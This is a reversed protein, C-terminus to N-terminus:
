LLSRYDAIIVGGIEKADLVTHLKGKSVDVISQALSRGLDDLNIGVVSISIDQSSALAVQELVVKEPDNSTTHLGDTLLVIHKIGKAGHLLKTGAVIALAIDTEKGPSSLALPQVFTFFDKTLPIEQAVDSEFVVLGVKNQDRIAKHALAVGARKALRLKEGKMSGSTDVAYVINVQQRAERDFSQL